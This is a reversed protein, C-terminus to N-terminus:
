EEVTLPLPALFGGGALLLDPALLLLAGGALDLGLTEFLVPALADRRRGGGWFADQCPPCPDAVRNRGAALGGSCLAQGCRGGCCLACRLVLRGGAGWGLPFAVSAGLDNAFLEVRATAQGPGCLPFWRATSGEPLYYPLLRLRWRCASSNAVCVRTWSYVYV